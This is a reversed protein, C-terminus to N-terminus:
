LEQYWQTQWIVFLTGITSVQRATKSPASGRAIVTSTTASEHSSSPMDSFKIKGVKTKGGVLKRNEDTCKCFMKAAKQRRTDDFM